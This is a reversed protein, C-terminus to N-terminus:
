LKFGPQFLEPLNIERAEYAVVGILDARSTCIVNWINWNNQRNQVINQIFPIRGKKLCSYIEYVDIIM